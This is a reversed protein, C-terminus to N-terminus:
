SQFKVWQANTSYVLFCFVLYNSFATKFFITKSKTDSLGLLPGPSIIKALNEPQIVHLGLM